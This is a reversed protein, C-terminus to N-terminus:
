FLRKARELDPVATDADNWATAGAELRKKHLLDKRSMVVAAPGIALVYSLFLIVSTQVEGFHGAIALWSEYLRRHFAKREVTKM